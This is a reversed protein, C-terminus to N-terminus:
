SMYVNWPSEYCLSKTIQRGSCLIVLAVGLCPSVSFLVVPFLACRRILSQRERDSGHNMEAGGPRRPLRTQRPKTHLALDAALVDLRSGAARHAETGAGQVAEDLSQQGVVQDLFGAAARWRVFVVLAAAIIQAVLKSQPSLHLLDDALGILFVLAAGVFLPLYPRIAAAPSFASAAALTIGFALLRPFSIILGQFKLNAISDTLRVTRYDAKWFFLAANQLVISLGVTSFIQAVHTQSGGLAGGIFDIMLEKGRVVVRESFDNFGTGALFTALEETVGMNVESQESEQIQWSYVM